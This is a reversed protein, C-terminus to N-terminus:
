FTFISWKSEVGCSVFVVPAYILIRVFTMMPGVM